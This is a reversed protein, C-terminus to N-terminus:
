GDSKRQPFWVKHLTSATRFRKNRSQVVDPAWRCNEPCYNGNYDIRDLTFGNPRKGMDAYFSEFSKIWADCVKIGRGGYTPYSKSTPVLCRNLVGLWTKFEPMSYWEPKYHRRDSRCQSCKPFKKLQYAPMLIQHGCAVCHCNWIHHGSCDNKVFHSVEFSGFIAGVEILM